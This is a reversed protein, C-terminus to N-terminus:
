DAQNGDPEDSDPQEDGQQDAVPEDDGSLAKKVTEKWDGTLKLREPEPGRPTKDAIPDNSSQVESFVTAM